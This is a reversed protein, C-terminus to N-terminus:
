NALEELLDIYTDIERISLENYKAISKNADSVESTKEKNKKIYEIKKKIKQKPITNYIFDFQNQKDGLISGYTNTTENIIKANDTSHMSIWRNVMYLSFQTESENIIQPKTKKYLISDIYEFITEMIVGM